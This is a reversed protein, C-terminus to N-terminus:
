RRQDVCVHRGADEIATRISRMVWIYESGLPAARPQFCEQRRRHHHRACPRARNQNLVFLARDKVRVSSNGAPDARDRCRRRLTAQMLGRLALLKVDDDALDTSM